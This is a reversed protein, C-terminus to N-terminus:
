DAVSNLGCGKPALQPPGGIAKGGAGNGCGANRRLKKGGQSRHLLSRRRHLHPHKQGDAPRRDAPPQRPALPQSERASPPQPPRATAATPKPSRVLPWPGKSPCCYRLLPGHPHYPCFCFLTTSNWQLRPPHCPTTQATRLGRQLRSDGDIQGRAAETTAPPSGCRRGGTASSGISGGAGAALQWRGFSLHLPLLRLRLPNVLPPPHRIRRSATRLGVRKM